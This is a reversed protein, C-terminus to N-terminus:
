SASSSGPSTWFRIGLPAAILAGAVSASYAEERGKITPMAGVLRLASTRALNVTDLGVGPVSQAFVIMMPDGHDADNLEPKFSVTASKWNKDLWDM